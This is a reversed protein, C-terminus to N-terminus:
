LSAPHGLPVKIDRAQFKRLFAVQGTYHDLNSQQGGEHVSILLACLDRPPGPPGPEWSLPRCLSHGLRLVWLAFSAATM